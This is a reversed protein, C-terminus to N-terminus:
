LNGHNKVYSRKKIPLNVHIFNSIVSTGSNLGM